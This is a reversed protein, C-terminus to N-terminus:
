DKFANQGPTNGKTAKIKFNKTGKLNGKDTDDKIAHGKDGDNGVKDGVKGDGGSGPSADVNSDGVKFKRPNKLHETHDPLEKIDVGEGFAGGDEGEGAGDGFDDYGEDGGMDDVECDEEGGCCSALAKYLQDAIDGPITITVEDDSGGEDGLDGELEDDDGEVPDDYNLGLADADDDMVAEFLKNFKDSMGTNLDVKEKKESLASFKRVNYADDKGVKNPDLTPEEFGDVEPGGKQLEAGTKGKGPKKGKEVPIDQKNSGAQDKEEVIKRGSLFSKEYAEYISVADKPDFKTNGM